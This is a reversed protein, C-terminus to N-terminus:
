PRITEGAEPEAGNEEIGESSPLWIAYNCILFRGRFGIIGDNMWGFTLHRMIKFKFVGNLRFNPDSKLNKTSALKRCDRLRLCFFITTCLFLIESPNVRNLCSLLQEKRKSKKLSDDKPMFRWSSMITGTCDQVPHHLKKERGSYLVQEKM